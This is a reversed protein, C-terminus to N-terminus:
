ARAAVRTALRAVALAATAVRLADDDVATPPHASLADLAPASAVRSLDAAFRARAALLRCADRDFIEAAPLSSTAGGAGETSPQEAGGM